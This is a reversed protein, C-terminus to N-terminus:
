WGGVQTRDLVDQTLIRFAADLGKQRALQRMEKASYVGYGQFGKEEWIMQKKRTDYFTVDLVVTIQYQDASAGYSFPEERVEVVIGRLVSDALEEDVVKLAGDLVFAQILSDTLVQHIGAELSMNEMLPIAVTRIGNEGTASTSYFACGLCFLFLLSFVLFTQIWCNFGLFYFGTVVWDRKKNSVWPARSKIYISRPLKEKIRPNMKKLCKLNWSKM